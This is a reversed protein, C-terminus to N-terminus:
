YNYSMKTRAKKQLDPAHDTEDVIERKLIEEIVDELTVVGALGHYENKVLALHVKSGIFMNLLQDLKQQKQVTLIKGKKYIDAVKIGIKINILNKAYLIGVINDNTDKYVPIRTFGEKKIKNLLKEDLYTNIGLAYVVTRPTMIQEANKDSFSLAGEIIREEDADLDSKKSNGHEKIIQILEKKSYISPIEEGLTKDLIWAIPWCIPFLIFIFIKVLWATKAGLQMAYKAFTAQPIIEGFIVILGTATIGAIVGSAINGLFIALTSNVGVNGLLLTCLLLNGKKRVAFIKKAKKNGLSIKRELENKDLSLLGLTLGSFLGSLLVLFIIIFYDM